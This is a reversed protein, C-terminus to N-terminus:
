KNVPQIPISAHVWKPTPKGRVEVMVRRLLGAGCSSDLINQVEDATKRPFIRRRIERRTLGEPGAEAIKQALVNSASEARAGFMFRASAEAYKWLERAGALHTPTIKRSCDLVAKLLSMRFVLTPGRVVIEGFPGPDVQLLEHYIVPWLKRAGADFALPEGLPQGARDNCPGWEYGVWDLAESIKQRFPKLQADLIRPPFALEGRRRCCCWIFRNAFGNGRDEALLKRLCHITSHGILSVHSGTVRVPRNKSSSALSGGDFAGRLIGSLSNGERNMVSLTAGFEIETWLARKDKVGMTVAGTASDTRDDRILEILGEGTSMGRFNQHAEWEPDLGRILARARELSTGKRALSTSGVVCLFLNGFQPTNDLYGHATRGLLNGFAVLLQFYIAIPDAETMEEFASVYAGLPDDFALSRELGELIPWGAIEDDDDILLDYRAPDSLRDFRGVLEEATLNGAYADRLTADCDEIVKRAIAKQRVIQAHYLANEAHPISGLCQTLIDDIDAEIDGRRLLEASVSIAEPRGGSAHVRLIAEYLTQHDRRYFDDRCVLRAVEDIRSADLLLAGLVGREADLNHPPLRDLGREHAVGNSYGNALSM